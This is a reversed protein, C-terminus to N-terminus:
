IAANDSGGMEEAQEFNSATGGLLLTAEEPRLMPWGVRLIAYAIASGAAAIAEAARTDTLLREGDAASIAAPFGVSVVPVGVSPWDPRDGNYLRVGGATSLQFCQCLREPETAAIADILLVLDAQAERVVAAAVRVTDLNSHLAIGPTVSCVDAFRRGEAPVDSLVRLPLKQTVAAGLADSPVAPNGLGCICLRKGFYPELVAELCKSLCEGIARLSLLQYMPTGVDITMYRGIVRELKAAAEPTLVDVTLVSFGCINKEDVTIGKNDM